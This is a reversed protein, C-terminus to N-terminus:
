GAGHGFRQTVFGDLGFVEYVSNSFVEEGLERMRGLVSAEWSARARTIERHRLTHIV